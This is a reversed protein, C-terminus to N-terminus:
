RQRRCRALYALTHLKDAVIGAAEPRGHATAWTTAATEIEDHLRQDTPRPEPRTWPGRARLVWGVAGGALAGSLAGIVAPLLYSALLGTM